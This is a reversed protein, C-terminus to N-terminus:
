GLPVGVLTYVLKLKTGPYTHAAANLEDLLHLIARNSRPNTLGHVGITLQGRAPDPSMDAESRFLERVLARADDDRALEARLVATMATEARYAILKVTDMLRKRSPALRQFKSEEPLEDWALHHPTAQRQRKVEAWEHEIQEIAEVLESKRREWKPLQADDSEPHLTHAAFQAQRQQLKGKLSRFRRDLERWAPNVVPRNTGPIEETGYESLLDIAYHQMMYRFFNEQSWRSFLAAADKLGSQGYASSILSVQHGSATLKRIERVWLGHKRDGIWSGMEALKLTVPEGNPLTVQTEVFQEVPWAEKPYKHYTICAVRHTQWMEKFFEPSYGERDFVIVFRCRYPDAQLEEANPQRPVERLLRPVIDSRLAELMGHDIPREVVFFPQGLADNVWYDTTGRLCLRQRAIYRRPLETQQGHYLRVHGDVYLTGALEPAAELWQRSLLAAWQDPANGASLRALKNRLCRVEPVRDLGMLKGLEGPTEYQLQEVTRIRCLAMNALLTVVHVTSYYGGLSPFTQELHQFLGNEVLAPLACLVGGFSVDRCAEFRTPAGQLMGLAALVREGPRTCATGMEASADAESRQSKDSALSPTEALSGHPADDLALPSADPKAPEQLRGQHIAKRLTDYAIGLEDAVDCRSWGRDLLEQSRAIVEDTMVSPGRGRRPRYFAAIGQERYRKVSRKVSNASVAFTRVIDVQSCAGQCVLQATFMRFSQRDPAPHRFVPQVGSFYTWEGSEQVVSIRDNITNAGDPILPLLAQPL